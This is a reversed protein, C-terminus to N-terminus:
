HPVSVMPFKRWRRHHWSWLHPYQLINQETVRALQEAEAGLSSGPVRAVPAGIAFKWVPEAATTSLPLVPAGSQRALQAPGVSMPMEKGLFRLVIGDQAAKTGQDIMVFLIRGRRLADLMQVYARLGANAPIGEIGYLPLGREFFGASMMRAQRYVVSVPWGARALRAALLAGNGMHAGLLIAGRGAALATRLQELGDVECQSNLVGDDLRHDFMALVELVAITNVRYAQRLQERVAPDGAPRGLLLALDDTCRRRVRWATRFQIDALRKGVRRASAFGTVRMLQRTTLFMVRRRLRRLWRRFERM